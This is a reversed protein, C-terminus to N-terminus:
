DSLRRLTEENAEIFEELTGRFKENRTVDRVHQAHRKRADLESATKGTSYAGCRCKAMWINKTSFYPFPGELILGHDVEGINEIM